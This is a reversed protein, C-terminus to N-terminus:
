YRCLHEEEEYRRHHYRRHYLRGAVVAEEVALDEDILRQMELMHYLEEMRKEETVINEKV